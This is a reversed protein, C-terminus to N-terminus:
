LWSTRVHCLVNGRVLFHEPFISVPESWTLYPFAEKSGSAPWGGSGTSREEGPSLSPSRLCVAAQATETKTKITYVSGLGQSQKHRDTLVQGKNVM